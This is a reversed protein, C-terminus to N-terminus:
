LAIVDHQCLHSRTYTHGLLGVPSLGPVSELQSMLAVNDVLLEKMEVFQGSHIKDVPKQPLPEALPSLLLGHHVQTTPLGPTVALSNSAWFILPQQSPPMTSLPLTPQNICKPHCLYLSVLQHEGSGRVRYSVSFFFKMIILLLQTRWKGQGQLFCLWFSFFFKM